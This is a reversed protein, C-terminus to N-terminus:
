NEAGAQKQKWAKYWEPVPEGSEFAQLEKVAEIFSVRQTARFLYYDINRDIPRSINTGFYRFDASVLHYTPYPVANYRRNLKYSKGPLRLNVATSNHKRLLAKWEEAPCDGCINIITISSDLGTKRLRDLLKEEYPFMKICPACTVSWFDLYLTKGKFSSLRVNNGSSDQLIIDPVTKGVMPDSRLNFQLSDPSQPSALNFYMCLLLQAVIKM